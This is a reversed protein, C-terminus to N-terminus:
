GRSRRSTGRVPARSSTPLSRPPPSVKDWPQTELWDRVVQKDFSPPDGNSWTDKKWFRSSDPTLVEDILITRAEVNGWELKTDCIIVGRSRTRRACKEFVTLTKDRLM